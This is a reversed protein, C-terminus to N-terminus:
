ATSYFSTQLNVFRNYRRRYHFSHIKNMRVGTTTVEPVSYGSRCESPIVLSSEAVDCHNTEETKPFVPSVESMEVEDWVSIANDVNHAGVCQTPQRLVHKCM